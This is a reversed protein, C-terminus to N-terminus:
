IKFLDVVGFPVQEIDRAGSCSVEQQHATNLRPRLEQIVKPGSLGKPVIGQFIRWLENVNTDVNVSVDNPPALHTLAVKATSQDLAESGQHGHAGRHTCRGQLNAKHRVSPVREIGRWEADAIGLEQPNPDSTGCREIATADIGLLECVKRADAGQETM